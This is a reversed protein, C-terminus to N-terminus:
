VHARGIEPKAAFPATASAIWIRDHSESGRFFAIRSGDPSFRPVSDAGDGPQPETVTVPEGGAFDLMMLRSPYDARPRAAFVMRRGDPSLDFRPLPRLACDLLRRGNKENLHYEVIECGDATQKWYAIRVGDAFFVPSSMTEAAAVVITRAGSGIDQMVIESQGGTAARRVYIVQRGDPSFRPGLELAPDSAFPAATNIRAAWDQKLSSIPQSRGLWVAVLVVVTLGALLGAIWKGAPASSASERLVASAALSQPSDAVAAVVVPSSVSAAERSVPAVLRYGVKPLTEVYRPERSDDGLATRLEAIARSLVEDNVIKRSWVDNILQERTVASGPEMALRLLVQMLLPRLRVVGSPGVLENSDARVTFAGIQLGTDDVAQSNEALGSTPSKM